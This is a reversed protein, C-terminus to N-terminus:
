KSACPQTQTLSLPLDNEELLLKLQDLTWDLQAGSLGESIELASALMNQTSQQSFSFDAMSFDEVDTTTNSPREVPKSTPQYRLNTFSTTRILESPSGSMGRETPSLASPIPLDQSTSRAKQPTRSKQPESGETEMRECERAQPEDDPEKTPIIPSSEVFSDEEYESSESFSSTRRRKTEHKGEVAAELDRYHNINFFREKTSM